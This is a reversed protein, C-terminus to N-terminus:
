GIPSTEMEIGGQLIGSHPMGDNLDHVIDHVEELQHSSAENYNSDNNM